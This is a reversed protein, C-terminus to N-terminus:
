MQFSTYDSPIDFLEKKTKNSIELIQIISAQSNNTPITEIYKLTDGEFYLVNTENEFKYEEFYYNNGNFDKTGLKIFTNIFNEDTFNKLMEQKANPDLDMAVYQKVSHMISYMTEDKVIMGYGIDKMDTAFNNGDITIEVTANKVIEGVDNEADTLLKIYYNKTTLPALAIEAKLKTNVNEDQDNNQAEDDKNDVSPNNTPINIQEEYPLDNGKNTCGSLVFAFCIFVIILLGISLLKKM